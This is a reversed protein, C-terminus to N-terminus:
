IIEAARLIASRSRPNAAVEAPSAHIPKRTLIKLSRQHGCACLPAEPPCICDKAETQFFHKVIRDELSHFSIVVIRGGPEIVKLSDKLALRLNDLEHNVAIRLAQFVQTAPHIKKNRQATKTLLPVLNEITIRGQQESLQKLQRAIQRAQRVEGYERLIAAIDDISSRAILESASLGIGADFRLDLLGRGHFSFGREKDALQDSSVGLDLLFGSVASGSLLDDKIKTIQKYNKQVLLCREGYKSLRQASRELADKDMDCGVVIGSPSNKKLIEETHGGGGVTGDIYNGNKKVALYHLVETVMIPIHATKTM